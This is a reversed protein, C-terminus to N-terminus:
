LWGQSKESKSPDLTINIISTLPKGTDMLVKLCPSDTHAAIIKFRSYLDMPDFRKGVTFTILSSGQRKIFYKGGPQIASGLCWVQSEDLLKFGNSLLLQGVNEVAHYPSPSQQLFKLMGNLHNVRAM